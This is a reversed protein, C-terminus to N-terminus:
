RAPASPVSSVPLAALRLGGDREGGGPDVWAVLVETDVADAPAPLVALRPVGAARSGSSRAVTVAPGLRGDAHLRRVRIAAGGGEGGTADGKRRELWSILASGNGPHGSSGAPVVKLDIRGLTSGAAVQVPEGFTRGGDASVAALVRPTGGEATFWAAWVAEGARAAAPGNVPCAAIQWGDRHLPEPASWGDARKRVIKHDRVENDTRDRYLVLPGSDTVVATTSCCDCVSEDLLEEAARDVGSAGETSAGLPVTRLTMPEGDATPGGDLWFARLGAGPKGAERVPDVAYSVFGHETPSDDAHLRGLPTWSRGGDRSRALRVEYAYVAEGNRALWHAYLDGDPAQVSGPRDAWNAFFRTQGAPEEPSPAVTVPETWASAGDTGGRSWRAFRLRWAAERSSSPRPELWTLAVEAAGSGDRVVTMEPAMSGPAAPADLAEVALDAPSAAPSPGDSPAPAERAGCGGTAVLVAAALLPASAAAWRSRFAEDTM